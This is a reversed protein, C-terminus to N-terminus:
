VAVEEQLFEDLFADYDMVGPSKPAYTFMSQQEMSAERIGVSDRITKAFVRSHLGPAIEHLSDLLFRSLTLRPNYRTLLIGEVTLDPNTYKQVLEITQALQVIGQIDYMSAQVPIIVRNSATMANITLVGLVPPTDIIVYDYQREITVLQEKLRSENGPKGNLILDISALDRSGAICSGHEPTEQIAAAIPTENMMVGLISPVTLKAKVAYTLNTQPDLDIGLVRYGRKSLGALMAAATTTKGTGGKQNTITIIM